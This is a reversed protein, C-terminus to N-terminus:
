GAFRLNGLGDLLMEKGNLRGRYTAFNQHRRPGELEQRLAAVALNVRGMRELDTAEPPRPLRYQALKEAIGNQVPLRTPPPLRRFRWGSAEARVILDWDHILTGLLGEDYGGLEFFAERLLGIRGPTGDRLNGTGQRCCRGQAVAAHIHGRDEPSLFNDADLNFLFAGRALRHALNKAKSAHWPAEGRVEFFRLRNAEIEARFNDWVWASLGDPSAFDVLVIEENPGIAALNPALTERLQHLRGKCTTCFSVEIEGPM